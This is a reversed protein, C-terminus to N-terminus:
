MVAKKNKSFIWTLFEDMDLFGDEDKDAAKLLRQADKQPMGLEGMISELAHAALYGVRNRDAKQFVQRVAEERSREGPNSAPSNSRARRAIDKSTVNNGGTSGGVEVVGM